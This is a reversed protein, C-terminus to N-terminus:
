VEENKLEKTYDEYSKDLDLFELHKCVRKEEPPLAMYDGYMEKLMEDYEKPIYFKYKEFQCEIINKFFSKKMVYTGGFSTTCIDMNNEYNQYKLINKELRKISCFKSNILAIKNMFRSNKSVKMRRTKIEYVRCIYRYKKTYSLNKQRNKYRLGMTFFVDVFPGEYYPVGIEKICSTKDFIKLARPFSLENKELPAIINYKDSFESKLSLFKLYDDKEMIIDIDDDWPIFGKHRIAGILTGAYLTYKIDNKRCFADIDCMIDLLKSKYSEIDIDKTM